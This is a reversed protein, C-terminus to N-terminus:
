QPLPEGTVPTRRLDTPNLKRTHTSGQPVEPPLIIQM